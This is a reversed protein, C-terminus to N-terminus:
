VEGEVNVVSMKLGAPMADAEGASDRVNRLENFFNVSQGAKGGVFGTLM